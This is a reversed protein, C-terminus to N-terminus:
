TVRHWDLHHKRCLWVVKLPQGYDPHHMQADGDCVFCPEKSLRGRQLNVQAYSRANMKKRQEPTLPHTKRWERMYAAHKAQHNEAWM